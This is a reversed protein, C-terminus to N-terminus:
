CCPTASGPDGRPKEAHACSRPAASQPDLILSRVRLIVGAEVGAHLLMNLIFGAAAGRSPGLVEASAAAAALEHLPTRGTAADAAHGDAGARM